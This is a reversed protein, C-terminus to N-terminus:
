KSILMGAVYSPDLLKFYCLFCLLIFVDCTPKGCVVLVILAVKIAFLVTVITVVTTFAHSAERLLRSDEEQLTKFRTELEQLVSSIRAMTTPSLSITIAVMTTPSLSVNIALSYKTNMFLSSM